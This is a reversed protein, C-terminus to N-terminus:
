EDTNDEKTKKNEKEVDQKDEKKGKIQLRGEKTEVLEYENRSITHKGNGSEEWTQTQACNKLVSVNFQIKDKCPGDTCMALIM